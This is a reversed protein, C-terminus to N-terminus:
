HGLLAGVVAGALPGSGGASSASRAGPAGYHAEFLRQLREPGDDAHCGANACSSPMGWRAAEAPPVVGPAHSHLTYAGGNKIVRPMHCGVCGVDAQPPCAVHAVNREPEHYFAGEGHCDGCDMRRESLEGHVEHCVACTIGHRVEEVGPRRRRDALIFDGAHCGLCEETVEGYRGDYGERLSELSDAHGGRRWAAYEQHRKRESGNGWWFSSSQHPSPGLERFLPSLDDGPRYGVPFHFEGTPDTGRTHCQGCVAADASSHIRGLGRTKVHWGGPGHCSECGINPEVFSGTQPDLGVTHCGHCRKHPAPTRWGDFGRVKWGERHVLWAGPLLTEGEGDHGMFQQEWKGGIAWVAHQAVFAVDPDEAALDAVVVGPEDVPRMMKQHQSVRWVAAEQRHCGECSRSGVYASSSPPDMSKVAVMATVTGVGSVAALAGGLRVVWTRM